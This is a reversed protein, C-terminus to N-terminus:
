RFRGLIRRLTSGPHAPKTPPIIHIRRTALDEYARHRGKYDAPQTMATDIQRVLAEDLRPLQDTNSLVPM